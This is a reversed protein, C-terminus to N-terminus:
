MLIEGCESCFLLGLKIVLLELFQRSEQLAKKALHRDAIIRHNYGKIALAIGKGRIYNLQQSLYFALDALSDSQQFKDGRFEWALDNLLNIRATDNQRHELLLTQLSDIYDSQAAANHGSVLIVLVVITHSM